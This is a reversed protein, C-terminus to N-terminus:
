SLRSKVRGQARFLTDLLYHKRLIKNILNTNANQKIEANDLQNLIIKLPNEVTYKNLWIAGKKAEAEVTEPHQIYHHILKAIEEPTNANLLPYLDDYDKEYLEDARYHLLPIESALTENVVGCTLWSNDFQGCSLNSLNLGFMIEKRQMLPMWVVLKEINLDEILQKSADVNMGYDFLILKSKLQKNTQLFLAFGKILIDNGKQHIALKDELNFGNHRSHSFIILDNNAKLETYFKYYNLKQISPNSELNKYQPAYVMPGSTNYYTAVTKLKHKFPFHINYEDPFLITPITKIGIKQLKGLTTKERLWWVKNAGKKRREHFPLAYIDSGHPIFVDLSRDILTLLAPAIDSGIYFDFDGLQSSLINISKKDYLSYKSVELITTYSLYDDDYSDAEPRFHVPEDELIFLSANVGKDRLYRCLIFMMNNINGICAVKM